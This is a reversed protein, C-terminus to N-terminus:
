RSEGQTTVRKAVRDIPEPSHLTRAIGPTSLGRKAADPDYALEPRRLVEVMDPTEEISVFGVHLTATVATLFDSERYGVTGFHGAKILQTKWYMAWSGDSWNPDDFHKALKPQRAEVWKASVEAGFRGTIWGALWAWDSRDYAAQVAGCNSAIRNRDHTTM